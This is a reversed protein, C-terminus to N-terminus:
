HMHEPAPTGKLRAPPLKDPVPVKRIAPIILAVAKDVAATVPIAPKDPNYQDVVARAVCRLCREKGSGPLSFMLGDVVFEFIEQLAKRVPLQPIVDDITDSLFQFRNLEEESDVRVPYRWTRGTEKCFVVSHIIQRIGSAIANKMGEELDDTMEKGKM